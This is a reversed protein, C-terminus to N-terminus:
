AYKTSKLANIILHMAKKVIKAGVIEISIINVYIIQIIFFNIKNPVATVAITVPRTLQECSKSPLL